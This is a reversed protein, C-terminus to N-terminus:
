IINRLEDMHERAYYFLYQQAYGAYEGFYSLAFNEIEKMSAERKFYLEEMVRKIWVDTPFVDTHAGTFLLVCDAVKPGVGCFTRLRKQADTRSMKKLEETAVPNENFANSTKVIYGCRYGARCCDSIDAATVPLLLKVAPFAYTEDSLKEGYSAAINEVCGKIRPINNNASLIFSILTEFIEQKLLRIGYGFEVSVQMFRDKKALDDKIKGYDRYLDLYRIWFDTDIEGYLNRITLVGKKEAEFYLEAANGGACGRYGGNYPNWRFCQGCDFIHQLNFDKVNYIDVADEFVSSKRIEFM